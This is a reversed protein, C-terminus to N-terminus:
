KARDATLWSFDTLAVNALCASEATLDELLDPCLSTQYGTKGKSDPSTHGARQHCNRCSTAIPHTVGEIYPNVSIKLNDGVEPFIETGQTLLYNQWPGVASTLEPRDKAYEGTDPENVWWVSQLTWTPVEKTFVHMAVTVLYDGPEFPKDYLWFSAANLIAKDAEDFLAWDAETVQHHYLDEIPVIPATVTRTDMPSGDNEEVGYLFSVEAEGSQANSPDIAVVSEWLEYGWYGTFSPDWQTGNYWPVATLGDAKVPWYMHKTFIAEAPFDVSKGDRNMQDLTSKKYLEGAVIAEFGAPSMSETAVMIDGNFAFYAGDYLSVEGSGSKKLAGQFNEKVYEPLPYQPAPTSVNPADTEVPAVRAMQAHQSKRISPHLAEPPAMDQSFAQSGTPWSFWVPWSNNDGADLPQMIGAWLGWGHERIASRMNEQVANELQETHEFYGYGSPIPQYTPRGDQARVQSAFIAAGIAAIALSRSVPTVFM